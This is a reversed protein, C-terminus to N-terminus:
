GAPRLMPVIFQFLCLWNLSLFLVYVTASVVWRWHLRSRSWALVFLATAGLTAVTWEASNGMIVSSIGLLGAALLLISAVISGPRRRALESLGAAAMAAAAALGPFLYRGQHQVFKLNYGLYTAATSSSLLALLVLVGVQESTLRRRRSWLRTGASTGGVVVLATFLALARYLRVDILVGMWGFQAWFSRFTTLIFRQLFASLGIEAVLDATRLQGSVISDHRAWGLLDNWGYVAINRVFFPLAILVALLVAVLGYRLLNRLREGYGRSSGYLAPASLTLLGAQLYVTTKTLLVLSLLAGSLLISRRSPGFRVVNLAQWLSLLLLLEALGDNNVAATMALRM